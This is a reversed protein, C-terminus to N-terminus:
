GYIVTVKGSQVGSGEATGEGANLSASLLTFDENSMRRLLRWPVPLCVVQALFGVRRQVTDHQLAHTSRASDQRPVQPLDVELIQGGEEMGALAVRRYSGM